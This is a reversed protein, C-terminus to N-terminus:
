QFCNGVRQGRRHPYPPRDARVSAARRILDEEVFNGFSGEPAEYLQCLLPAANVKLRKVPRPEVKLRSALEADTTARLADLDVTLDLCYHINPREANVGIQTVVQVSQQEGFFDFIVFAQEERVFDTVAAKQAFRLFRSWM